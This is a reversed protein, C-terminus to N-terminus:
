SARRGATWSARAERMFVAPDPALFLATGMVLVDAGAAGAAQATELNIGGDVSILFSLGLAKREAALTSCKKLCSPIMAQGGAGPDVTMVLVLDVFPLLESLLSPPTSPVISVGCRAGSSRIAEVLRHAHVTAELHFTISEAGARVFDPVLSGPDVTMLHVDFPIHVYPKLDAIIKPGFALAPVFRGDMVDVHLWDAGASEMRSLETRMDSLDAALLSAAVIPREMLGSLIM